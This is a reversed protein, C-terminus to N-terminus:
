SGQSKFESVYKDLNKKLATFIAGKIHSNVKDRHEIGTKYELDIRIEEDDDVVANSVEPFKFEGTMKTEEEGEKLSITWKM